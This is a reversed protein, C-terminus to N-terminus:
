RFVPCYGDDAVACATYGGAHYFQAARLLESLSIRWDQPASDLPHPACELATGACGYGGANYLAIVQLLDALTMPLVPGDEILVSAPTLPTDIATARGPTPSHARSASAVETAVIADASLEQAMRTTSPEATNAAGLPAEVGYLAFALDPHLTDDMPDGVVGCEVCRAGWQDVCGFPSLRPTQRWVSPAGYARGRDAASASETWVWQGGTAFPLVVVVSIWYRGPPLHVGTGPLEVFFDGADLDTYPRGEAVIRSEAAPRGRADDFVYVHIAGPAEPAEPRNQYMGNVEVGTLHWGSGAPVTFDDAAQLTGGGFDTVQQSAIGHREAPIGDMTSFLVGPTAQGAVAFLLLVPFSLFTRM